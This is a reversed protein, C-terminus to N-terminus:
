LWKCCDRLMGYSISTETGNIGKPHVGEMKFGVKEMVRRARHNKKSTIATIRDCDLTKFPYLCITRAMERIDRPCWHPTTFGAAVEIDHGRYNYFVFGGVIKGNRVIGLAQPDRLTEGGPVLSQVLATVQQDMGFLVSGVLAPSNPALM